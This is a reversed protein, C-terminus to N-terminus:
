RNMRCLLCTHAVRPVDLGHRGRDAPHGAGVPQRTTSFAASIIAIPFCRTRLPCSRVAPISWIICPLHNESAIEQARLHKKVTMPYYTGGKVTADNAVNQLRAGVGAIMGAAPADDRYMGNAASGASRSFRRRSRAVRQCSRSALAQRARTGPQAVKGGGVGPACRELGGVLGLLAAQDQRSVGRIRMNVATNLFTCSRARM